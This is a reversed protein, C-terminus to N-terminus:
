RLCRQGHGQGKSVGRPRLPGNGGTAPAQGANGFCRAVGRAVAKEFDADALFVNPSKGGLEQTTRKVAPAATQVVAVGARTSGTFSIKDIDPHPAIAYGVTPGDGNVLNFVGASVGVACMQADRAFQLPAGIERSITEALEELRADFGDAIRQLPRDAGRSPLSAFAPFTKRATKAARDDKAHGLAIAAFLEETAPNIVPWRQPPVRGVWKGDIFFQLAHM